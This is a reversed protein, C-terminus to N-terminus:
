GAIRQKLSSNISNVTVPQYLAMTSNWRSKLDQFHSATNGYKANVQAAYSGYVGFQGSTSAFSIAM